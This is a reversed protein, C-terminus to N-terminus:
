WTSSVLEQLRDSIVQHDQHRARDHLTLLDLDASVHICHSSNAVQPHNRLSVLHTQNSQKKSLGMSLNIKSCVSKGVDCFLQQLPTQRNTPGVADHQRADFLLQLKHHRAKVRPGDPFLVDHVSDSQPSTSVHCSAMCSHNSPCINHLSDLCIMALKNAIWRM